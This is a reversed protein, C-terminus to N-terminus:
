GDIYCLCCTTQSVEGISIFTFKLKETRLRRRILSTSQMIGETFGERPGTLVKEGGPESISRLAFGKTNVILAMDAGDALVVTDGYLIAAFIDGFSKGIKIDNGQLIRTKLDAIENGYQIKENYLTIPRVVSDNIVPTSVMGDCFFICCRLGSKTELPRSIFTSDKDFTAALFRINEGLNKSINEM